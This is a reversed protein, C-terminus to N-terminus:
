SIENDKIKTKTSDYIYDNLLKKLLEKELLKDFDDVYKNIELLKNMCEYYKIIKGRYTQNDEIKYSELDLIIRKIKNLCIIQDKYLLKKINNLTFRVYSYFKPIFTSDFYEIDQEIRKQNIFQKISTLINM